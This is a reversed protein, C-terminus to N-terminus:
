HLQLTCTTHSSQLSVSPAFFGSLKSRVETLEKKLKALEADKAMSEAEMAGHEDVVQQLCVLM